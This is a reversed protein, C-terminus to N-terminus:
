VGEADVVADASASATAAAEEGRGGTSRKRSPRWLWALWLRWRLCWWTWVAARRAPQGMTGPPGYWVEAYLDMLEGIEDAAPEVIEVGTFGRATAIATM